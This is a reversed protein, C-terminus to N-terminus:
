KIRGILALCLSCLGAIGAQGARVIVTCFALILEYSLRQLADM